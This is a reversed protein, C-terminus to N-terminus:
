RSLIVQEVPFLFRDLIDFREFAFDVRDMIHQLKLLQLRPFPHKSPKTKGGGLIDDLHFSSHSTLNTGSVLQKQGLHHKTPHEIRERRFLARGQQAAEDELLLHTRFGSITSSKVSMRHVWDSAWTRNFSSSEEGNRISCSVARRIALTEVSDPIARM